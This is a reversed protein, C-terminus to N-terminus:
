FVLKKKLSEPIERDFSIQFATRPHMVDEISHLIRANILYWRRQLNRYEAILDLDRTTVANTHRDRTVPHGQQRWFCLRADDGGQDINYILVYDRSGDTHAGTSPTDASGQYRAIGADLFGRAINEKVWSEYRHHLDPLKARVITPATYTMGKWDDLHRQTYLGLNRQPWEPLDQVAQVLYEPPDPLGPLFALTFEDLM